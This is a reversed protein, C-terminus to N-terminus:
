ANAPSLQADLTDCIERAGEWDGAQTAAEMALVRNSLDTVGAAQAIDCISRAAAIEDLDLLARTLAQYLRATHPAEALAAFLFDLSAAPAADALALLTTEDRMGDHWAEVLCSAAEERRGLGLLSRGLAAKAKANGPAGVVAEAAEGAAKAHDGDALSVEAALLHAAASDGATRLLAPVLLRAVNLRGDRLLANIRDALTAAAGTLRDETLPAESRPTETETHTM